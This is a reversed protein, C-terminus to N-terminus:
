ITMRMDDRHDVMIKSMICVTNEDLYTYGWPLGYRGLSLNWPLPHCAFKKHRCICGELTLDHVFECQFCLISPFMQQHLQSKRRFEHTVSLHAM